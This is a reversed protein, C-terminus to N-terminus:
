LNHHHTTDSSGRDTVASLPKLSADSSGSRSHLTKKTQGQQLSHIANKLGPLQKTQMKEQSHIENQNHSNVQKM